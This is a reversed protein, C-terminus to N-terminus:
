YIIQSPGFVVQCVHLTDNSYHKSSLYPLVPLIIVLGMEKDKFCLAWSQTRTRKCRQQETAWDHQVRELGMSQLMGPKGRRLMEQLQDFGHGSLPHHLVAMQYKPCRICLQSRLFCQHQSLNFAPPSFSCTDKLKMAVTVMQLSKPAWFFLTQWQRWQKGM